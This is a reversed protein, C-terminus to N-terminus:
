KQITRRHSLISLFSRSDTLRHTRTPNTKFIGSSGAPPRFKQIRQNGTDAVYAYGSSDIAIGWPSQFEGDNSGQSGWKTLFSGNSTFKQIRHNGTDAVFVNGQTDIAINHPTSFQGDNSGFSGWAILFTGSTDFKQIRHNQSDAVYVNGASDVAIGTPSNFQGTGAGPGGWTTVFNPATGVFIDIRHNGTNAIYIKRSGDIAVDMPHNMQAPATGPEGWQGGYEGQASFKEINNNINGAIYISSTPSIGIGGPSNFEGAGSGHSGWQSNYNGNERFEQIRDNSSDVVLVYGTGPVSIDCPNNFQGAGNGATGWKKDFVYGTPPITTTTTSTTGTTTTTTSITTTNPVTTTTTSSSGKNKGLAKIIFYGAVIAAAAGLVIIFPSIRKKEPTAAKGASGIATPEQGRTAGALATTGATTATGITGAASYPTEAVTGEYTAGAPAAGSMQNALYLSEVVYGFRSASEVIDTTFNDAFGGITKPAEGLETKVAIRGSSDAKQWEPRSDGDAKHMTFTQGRVVVKDSNVALLFCDIAEASPSPAPLIGSYESEAAPPMEVFVFDAEGRAKFYCRVLMIGAPDIVRARVKIRFGPVFDNLSTPSIEVTSASATQAAIFADNAYLWLLAVILILCFGRCAILLNRERM